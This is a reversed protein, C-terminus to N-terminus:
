RGEERLHGLTHDTRDGAQLAGAHGRHQAARRRGRTQCELQLPGGDELAHEAGHGGIDRGGRGGRGARADEQVAWRQAASWAREAQALQAGHEHGIMQRSSQARMPSRAAPGSLGPHRAPGLAAAPPCSPSSRRTSPSLRGGESGLALTRSTGATRSGCM